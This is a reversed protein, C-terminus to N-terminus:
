SQERKFTSYTLGLAPLDHSENRAQGALVLLGWAKSPKELHTHTPPIQVVDKSLARQEMAVFPQPHDKLSPIPLPPVLPIKM